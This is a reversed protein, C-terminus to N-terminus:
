FSEWEEDSAKSVIKTEKLPKIEIKKTVKAIQIDNSKSNLNINKAKVDNKGIFEKENAEEIILKSIEDTQIAIDHAQSAIMANQQTQQDLQNVADNIQEIGLLQEKSAMEIDKILNITNTINENLQKYGNIMHEAINKGQNAKTTATLVLEKIEKAAEASRSALNRVEGAVVAFGKGAEGATAAEVAANLSLINTQFAIQDIVSIADSIANVQTNIEDMSVNTENALKEGNDSSKIVENSYSAMKEINETNFRINSTIEELAAATEELSAAAENSSLNLKNVNSLLINSSESLTLGNSKNEKLMNCIVDGIENVMVAIKAYPKPFRATYDQQKYKELVAVLINTDRAITHEFYHRLEELFRKLEKLAPTSTDQELKALNNGNKLEQVFNSVGVLFQSDEELLKEIKIINENIVKSMEGFEDKSNINVLEIKSSERNLYRFFSLLGHQFKKLSDTINKSIFQVLILISVIIVILIIIIFNTTNNINYKFENDLFVRKEYNAEQWKLLAAKLPRWQKTSEFNDEKSLSENNKLKKQIQNLIEMQSSYLTGISFREYGKSINSSNKLILILDEFDKVSNVFNDKAKTDSPNIILGRLANSVQLGQESAKTISISLNTLETNTLYGKEIKNMGSYLIFVMVTLFIVTLISILNIKFNVKLNSLNM